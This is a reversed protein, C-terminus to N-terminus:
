GTPLLEVHVGPNRRRIFALVEQPCAAPTFATPVENFGFVERCSAAMPGLQRAMWCNEARYLQITSRQKFLADDGRRVAATHADQHRDFPGDVVMGGSDSQDLTVAVYWKGPEIPRGEQDAEPDLNFGTAQFPFYPNGEYSDCMLPM